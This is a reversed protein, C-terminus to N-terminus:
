KLSLLKIHERIHPTFLVKESVLLADLDGRSYWKADAVKDKEFKLDDVSGDWSCTYVLHVENNTLNGIKHCSHHIWSFTLDQPRTQIWLEEWLERCAAVENSEWAEVHGSASSEWHLPLILKKEHRLQLLLEKKENVIWVHVAKHLLWKQHAIDRSVTEWTPKWERDVIDIVEQSM